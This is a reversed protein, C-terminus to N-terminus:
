RVSAPRTQLTSALEPQDQVLRDQLRSLLLVLGEQSLEATGVLLAGEPPALDEPAHRLIAKGNLDYLIVKM